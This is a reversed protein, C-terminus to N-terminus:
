FVGFFLKNVARKYMVQGGNIDKIDSPNVHAQAEIAADKSFNRQAAVPIYFDGKHWGVGAGVYWNRYLNLKYVDVKQQEENPTVVTRDTKELAQPPLAPDNNKIQEQVKKAADPITPAAVYYNTVPQIKGAEVQSLKDQLAQANQQNIHVQNQLVNINKLADQTLLVAQQYRAEQANHYYVAGAVIGFLLLVAIGICVLQKGTLNLPIM